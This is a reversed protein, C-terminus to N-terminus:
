IKRYTLVKSFLEKGNELVSGLYYYGLVKGSADTKYKKIGSTSGISFTSHYVKPQKEKLLPYKTNRLYIRMGSETFGKLVGVSNLTVKKSKIVYIEILDNNFIDVQNSKSVKNIAFNRIDIRQLNLKPENFTVRLCVLSPATFALGNRVEISADEGVRKVRRIVNGNVDQLKKKMEERLLKDTEAKEDKSTIFSADNLISVIRDRKLIFQKSTFDKPNDIYVQVKELIEKNYDKIFKEASMKHNPKVRELLSDISVRYSLNKKSQITENHAKTGIPKRSVWYAPTRLTGDIVNNYFLNTEIDKEYSGRLKAFVENPNAGDILPVIKKFNEKAKIKDIEYNQKFNTSINQLYSKSMCGILIADEAHHFNTDRSKNNISLIKRLYSTARGSIHMVRQNEKHKNTFPYYRKLVEGLLKEEYSTSHLNVEDKVEKFTQDLSEAKLNLWKKFNIKYSKKLEDINQLYIERKKGELYDLPLRRGKLANEHKTDIAKNYEANAGGCERPVIHEIETKDSLIDAIGIPNGSYIGIRGQQEWLKIKLLYEKNNELNLGIAEFHEKYRIKIDEWEKQNKDNARKIDRKVNEPQSLERTSELKIIDFPGYKSDLDIIVRCVWSILSKVVHNSIKNEDVEYQLTGQNDIPKLYKIGKLFQSYDEKTTINLLEKAKTENKGDKMYVLLDNMAKFSYSSTGKTKYKHLSLAFNQIQEKSFDFRNSIFYEEFKEILANPNIQTHFITALVDFHYVDKQLEKLVESDLKNLHAIFNFKVLYNLSSKGKIVRSDGLGSIKIDDEINLLKKIEKISYGSINKLEKLKTEFDNILIEKQEETISDKGIKMDNIHKYFNFIDFTYSFIPAVKSEKYVSCNNILDQNLEVPAQPIIINTIEDKFNKSQESDIFFGFKYQAEVIIGIEKQIDERRIMYKYNNHNRFNPTDKQSEIEWIIQSVTKDEYKCKLADLYALTETFKEDDPEIIEGSECDGIKKKADIEAILDEMKLSKYGRHKAMYKFIAFLEEIQLKREYVSKARIEWLNSFEKEDCIFGYSYFVNKLDKVRKKKKEKLKRLQKHERWQKQTGTDNPNDRMVVGYDILSYQNIAIENLVSFGCSTVGLDLALIKDM